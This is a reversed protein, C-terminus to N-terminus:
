GLRSRDKQCPVYFLSLPNMNAKNITGKKETSNLQERM